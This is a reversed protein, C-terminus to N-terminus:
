TLQAKHTGRVRASRLEGVRETLRAREARRFSLAVVALALALALGILLTWSVSTVDSAVFL